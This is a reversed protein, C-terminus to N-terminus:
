IGAMHEPHQVFKLHVAIARITIKIWTFYVPVYLTLAIGESRLFLWRRLSAINQSSFMQLCILRLVLSLMSLISSQINIKRGTIRVSAYAFSICGLKKSFSERTALNGIIAVALFIVFYLKASTQFWMRVFGTILNIIGVLFICIASSLVLKHVCCWQLVEHLKRFYMLNLLLDYGSWLAYM